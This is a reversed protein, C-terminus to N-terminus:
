KVATSPQPDVKRWSDKKAQEDAKRQQEAEKQEKSKQFDKHKRFGPKQRDKTTSRGSRTKTHKEETSGREGKTHEAMASSTSTSVTGANSTSAPTQTNANANPVSPPPVTPLGPAHSPFPNIKIGALTEGISTLARIGAKQVEPNQLVVIAVATVVVAAAVVVVGAEIVCGDPCHGDADVKVTPINRVYSYQNLSQPDGLDAYPV